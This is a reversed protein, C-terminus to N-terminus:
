KAEKKSQKTSIEKSSLRHEEFVKFDIDEEISKEKAKKANSVQEDTIRIITM